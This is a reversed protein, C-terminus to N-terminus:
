RKLSERKWSEMGGGSPRNEDTWQFDFRLLTYYESRNELILRM